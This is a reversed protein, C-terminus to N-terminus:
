AKKRVTFNVRVHPTKVCKLSYSGGIDLHDLLNCRYSTCFAGIPSSIKSTNQRAKKFKEFVTCSEFVSFKYFAEDAQRIHHQRPEIFSTQRPNLKISRSNLHFLATSNAFHPCFTTRHIGLASALSAMLRIRASRPCRLQERTGPLEGTSSSPDFLLLTPISQPTTSCPHM